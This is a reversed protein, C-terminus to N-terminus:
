PSHQWINMGHKTCNLGHSLSKSPNKSEGVGLDVASNLLLHMPYRCTEWCALRYFFYFLLRIVNDTLFVNRPTRITAQHVVFCNEYLFTQSINCLNLYCVCKSIQTCHMRRICLPPLLLLQLLPCGEPSWSRLAPWLESSRQWKMLLSSIGMSIKWYLCHKRGAEFLPMQSTMMVKRMSYLDTLDTLAAPQFTPRPPPQCLLTNPPWDPSQAGLLSTVNPLANVCHKKMLGPMLCWPEPFGPPPLDQRHAM